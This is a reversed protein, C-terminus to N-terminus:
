SHFSVLCPQYALCALISPRGLLSPDNVVTSWSLASQQITSWALISLQGPLFLIASWAVLAPQGRAPQVLLATRIM